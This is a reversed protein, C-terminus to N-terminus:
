LYNKIKILLVETSLTTGLNTIGWANDSETKVTGGTITLNGTNYIGTSREGSNNNSNIIGGKVILTGLNTIVPVSNTIEKEENLEIVGSGKSDEITVSSNPDEIYIVSNNGTFNTLKHGALDIVVHINSGPKIHFDQIATDKLELKYPDEETGSGTQTIQDKASGGADFKYEAHVNPMVMFGVMMIIVLMMVKRLKM